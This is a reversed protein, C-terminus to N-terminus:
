HRRVKWLGVSSSAEAQPGSRQVIEVPEILPAVRVREPKYAGSEVSSLFENWEDHEPEVPPSASVKPCLERKVRDTAALDMAYTPIKYGSDVKEAVKQDLMRRLEAKDM